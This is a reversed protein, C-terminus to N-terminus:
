MCLWILLLSQSEPDLAEPYMMCQKQEKELGRHKAQQLKPDSTLSKVLVHFRAEHM